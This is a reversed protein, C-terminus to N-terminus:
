QSLATERLKKLIAPDALFNRVLDHISRGDNTAQRLLERREESTWLRDPTVDSADLPLHHTVVFEVGTEDTLRRISGHALLHRYPRNAIWRAIRKELAHCKRDSSATLRSRLEVLSTLSGNCIPLDLRLCLAGIAQEAIAFNTLVRVIWAYPEDASVLELSIDAEVTV